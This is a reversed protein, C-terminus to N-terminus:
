GFYGGKGERMNNDMDGNYKCGDPYILNGLGCM